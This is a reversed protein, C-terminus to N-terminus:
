AAKQAPEASQAAEQPEIVVVKGDILAYRIFGEPVNRIESAPTPKPQFGLATLAKLIPSM